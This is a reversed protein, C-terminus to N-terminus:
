IEENRNENDLDSGLNVIACILVGDTHSTLSSVIVIM